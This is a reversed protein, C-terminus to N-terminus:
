SIEFFDERDTRERSLAVHVRDQEAAPTGM